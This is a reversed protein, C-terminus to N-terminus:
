VSHLLDSLSLYINYVLSCMHFRSLYYLSNINLAAISFCVYLVSRHLQPYPSSPTPLIYPPLLM